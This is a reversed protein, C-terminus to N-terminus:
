FCRSLRTDRSGVRTNETFASIGDKDVFYAVGGLRKAAEKDKDNLNGTYIPYAGGWKRGCEYQVDDL